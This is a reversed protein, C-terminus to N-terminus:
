TKICFTYTELVSNHLVECNRYIYRDSVTKKNGIGIRHFILPM